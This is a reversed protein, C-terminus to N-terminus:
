SRGTNAELLLFIDTRRDTQGDCVPIRDLRNNMDDFNKKVTPYGLWELTKVGFPHCYESTAGRVQADFAATIFFDRNEVLM